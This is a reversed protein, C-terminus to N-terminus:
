ASEGLVAIPPDTRVCLSLLRKRLCDAFLGSRKRWLVLISVIKRRLMQTLTSGTRKETKKGGLLEM